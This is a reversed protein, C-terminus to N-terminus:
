GVPMKRRDNLLKSMEEDFLTVTDRLLMGKYSAGLQQAGAILKEKPFIFGKELGEKLWGFYDIKETNGSSDRTIWIGPGEGVAVSKGAMDNRMAERAIERLTARYRDRGQLKNAM